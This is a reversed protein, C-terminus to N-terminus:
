IIQKNQFIINMRVVEMLSVAVVARIIIEAMVVEQTEVMVAM